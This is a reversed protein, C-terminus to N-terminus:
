HTATAMPRGMRYKLPRCHLAQALGVGTRTHAVAHAQPPTAEELKAHSRHASALKGAIASLHARCTVMVQM